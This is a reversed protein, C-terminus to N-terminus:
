GHEGGKQQPLSISLYPNDAQRRHGTTENQREITQRLALHEPSTGQINLWTSLSGVSVLDNM